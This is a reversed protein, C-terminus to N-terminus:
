RPILNSVELAQLVEILKRIEPHTQGTNEHRPRSSSGRRELRLSMSLANPELLPPLVAWGETTSQSSVTHHNAQRQM